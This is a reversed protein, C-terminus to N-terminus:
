FSIYANTLDVGSDSSGSSPSTGVISWGLGSNEITVWNGVQWKTRPIQNSVAYRIGDQDASQVDYYGGGGVTIIQVVESAQNRKAHDRAATAAMEEIKRHLESM